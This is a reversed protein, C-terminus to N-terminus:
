CRDAANANEEDAFYLRTNLGLNIGRAVIWLNLHPAQLRGNRGMVPGPKITEFSWLGTEFETIVRGWGRFGKAVKGFRSRRIRYIGNADAQWVEILVDKM